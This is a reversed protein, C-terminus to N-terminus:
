STKRNFERALTFELQYFIINVQKLIREKELRLQEEMEMYLSQVQTEHDQKRRFYFIFM